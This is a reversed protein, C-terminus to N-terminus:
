SVYIPADCAFRSAANISHAMIAWFGAEGGLRSAAHSTSSQQSEAAPKTPACLVVIGLSFTSWVDCFTKCENNAACMLQEAALHIHDPLQSQVRPRNLEM